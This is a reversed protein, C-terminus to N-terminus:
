HTLLFLLQLSSGRVATDQRSFPRRYATSCDIMSMTSRAQSQKATGSSITGSSRLHLFSIESNSRRFLCSTPVRSNAIRTGWYQLVERKRSIKFSLPEDLVIALAWCYLSGQVRQVALLLRTYSAIRVLYFHIGAVPLQLFEKAISPHLTLSRDM